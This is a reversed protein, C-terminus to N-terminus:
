NTPLCRTKIAKSPRNIYNIHGICKILSLSVWTPVSAFVVEALSVRETETYSHLTDEKPLAM